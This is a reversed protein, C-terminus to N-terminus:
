CAISELKQTESWCCSGSWKEHYVQTYYPSGSSCPLLKPILQLRQRIGPLFTVCDQNAQFQRPKLVSTRCGVLYRLRLCVLTTWWRCMQGSFAMWVVTVVGKAGVEEITKHLKFSATSPSKIELNTSSVSSYSVALIIVWILVHSAQLSQCQPQPGTNEGKCRAVGEMLLSSSLCFPKNRGFALIQEVISRM